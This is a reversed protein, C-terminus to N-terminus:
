LSFATLFGEHYAEELGRPALCDGVRRADVGAEVLARYLADRARGGVDYVVTDVGALTFGRETFCDRLTVGDGSIAVVETGPLQHVGGERLRREVAPRTTHDIHAGIAYDRAVITVEHGNTALYDAASAAALGGLGDVVVVRRGPQARGDLVDRVSVGAPAPEFPAPDSGTAVIVADPQPALVTEIDAEIGLRVEVDLRQLERALYTVGRLLEGRGPARAATLVQGGLRGGREFLVVAHGRQRAVLAAQMGAPGGGVVVVRRSTAARSVEGHERERGVAPNQVCSIPLGRYLRGLCGSSIYMCPRIEDLRGERAKNPWEPDAILARAMQVLDLQGATLLREAQVPDRIRGACSVPIRVAAKVPAALHVWTEEPWYMAPYHHGRSLWDFDVGASIDLYDVLGSQDLRRAIPLSDQLTLGGPLYEDVSLRVGVPYAEGVASRVAVLVELLLRLRHDLSGGYADTRRNTLPSLFQNLLYGHAAHLLVGDVGARQCRAAAAAFAAVIDRILRADMEIPVEGHIFSSVPSPGLLPQAAGRGHAASGQHTLQAFLAAGHRHVAEAVLRYGPIYSDDLNALVGSDRSSTAHVVSTGLVTLAVGGRARAAQYDADRQGLYGGPEAFGTTHPSLVLRNRLTLAKGLRLPSFLRPFHGIADTADPM